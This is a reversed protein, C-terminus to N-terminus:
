RKSGFNSVFPPFLLFCVAVFAGPLFVLNLMSVTKMALSDHKAAAAIKKSDEAISINVNSDRQSTMSYLQLMMTLPMASDSEFESVVNIQSQTRRYLSQAQHRRMEAGNLLYEINQMLTNEVHVPIAEVLKRERLLQFKILTDKVFRGAAVEFYIMNDLFILNTNCSHLARTLLEYNTAVQPDFTAILLSTMGTHGEINIVDTDYHARDRECTRGYEEILIGLIALPNVRLLGRHGHLRKLLSAIGAGDLEDRQFNLGIASCDIINIRM